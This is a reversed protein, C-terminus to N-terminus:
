FEKGLFADAVFNMMVVPSQNEQTTIAKLFEQSPVVVDLDPDARGYMVREAFNFNVVQKPGLGGNEPFADIDYKSRNVALVITSSISNKGKFRSM